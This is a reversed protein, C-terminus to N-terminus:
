RLPACGRGTLNTDLFALAKPWSDVRAAQTGEFTGGAVAFVAPNPKTGEPAPKGFAAHGANGYALHSHAYRFKAADLRAMVQEAMLTSPWLKDDRGSVLLVPGAIKEVPIM